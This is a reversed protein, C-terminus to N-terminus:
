PINDGRVNNVPPNQGGLVNNVLSYHGGETTIGSNTFIAFNKYVCKCLFFILPIAFHHVLVIEQLCKSWDFKISLYHKLILFVSSKLVRPKWFFLVSRRGSIESLIKLLYLQPKRNKAKAHFGSGNVKEHWITCLVIM